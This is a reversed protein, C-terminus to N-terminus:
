LEELLQKARDSRPVFDCGFSDPVGSLGNSFSVRPVVKEGNADIPCRLDTTAVLTAILIYVGSLALYQGPCVRRGFGFPGDPLPEGRGGEEKPAYREPIFDEPSSYHREDRSMAWANAYVVSGAPIRYGKYEEEKLTAHPVGLPSLPAWRTTEQIVMELYKMEPRDEFTPLRAVEGNEDIGLVSDIEKRLRVQVEPHLILNLICVIITSWTTNGGAISIAGAAGKIDEITTENPKGQSQNSLYRAFHTHVFSPNDVKGSRISPEVAAWPADHLRQISSKTRRAHVLPSLLSSLRALFSPTYALKPFMDVVSAGPVGGEGTAEEVDIAMKVYPDDKEQVPIGFGIRLVVAQSFQRLLLEWDKPRAFIAKVARQSEEVQIPRYSRCASQTFSQQLLKRHLKFRPSWRLFTLTIGWGMVEFLAFRPRDAFNAGKKDMLDRAAEVSNLVVIDRGLVSFHLVDSDYEKGWKAYEFEPHDSPVVRLHGLFPEAPPGPPLPLGKSRAFRQYVLQAIALVALVILLGSTMISLPMSLFQVRRICCGAGQGAMIKM